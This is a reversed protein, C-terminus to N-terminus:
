LVLSYSHPEFWRLINPTTDLGINDYLPFLEEQVNKM